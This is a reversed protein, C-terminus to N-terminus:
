IIKFNDLRPRLGVGHVSSKSVCKNNSKFNIKNAQKYRLFSSSAIFSLMIQLSYDYKNLRKKVQVLSKRTVLGQKRPHGKVNKEVM